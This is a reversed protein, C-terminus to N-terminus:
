PARPEVRPLRLLRLARPPLQLSVLVVGQKAFQVGSTMPFAGSGFVFGGGHIWVMVPLKAGPTASAPRWVNLFLCDESPAPAPPRVQPRPRASGDRCATRGSNRPRACAPGRRRRSPRGGGCNAWPPRRSPSAKSPRSETTWWGKCNAARWGCSRPRRCSAATGVGMAALGALSCLLLRTVRSATRASNGREARM